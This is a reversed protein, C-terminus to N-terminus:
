VSVDGNRLYDDMSRAARHAAAIATIVLDPGHTNDGGAFVGPLSTAGTEQDVQILGWKYTALDKTKEGLSPDPWYGIALVVADVPMVFESGEIPVPRRRGSKDPEGLEMRIAKMATVRGQEDGLFEVPAALYDIKVGEELCIGREVPNGPMEAETRRYVIRVEEAGLRVSTRACDVATDGGGIIAVRKGVYPRNRRELPLAELPLNARILFDTSRYVNQLNEGPIKMTAEIGAGTGLFVADYQRRLDDMSLAEGIRTNTVFRVGAEELDRIKNRVVRKDLKFNPIGYVLVGGPLPWAEYVTVEHGREVLDQAVTLGAPGSGVVAVKKDTKQEPVRIKFMGAERARDAVFAELKNINLPGRAKNLVCGAMCLGPCVRGCVEPLPSTAAFIQAAGVFDGQSILWMAEPIDNNAPCTLMCPQPDPCQICRSAELVATEENFGLIVEDFNQIREAVPRKEYKIPLECTRAKRDIIRYFAETSM